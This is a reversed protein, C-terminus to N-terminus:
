NEQYTAVFIWSSVIIIRCYCSGFNGECSVRIKKTELYWCQLSLHFILFSAHLIEYIVISYVVLFINETTNFTNDFYLLIIYKWEIYWRHILMLSLFFIWMFENIRFIVYEFIISAVLFFTLFISYVKSHKKEDDRLLILIHIMYESLNDYILLTDQITRIRM